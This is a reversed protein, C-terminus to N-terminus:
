SPNAFTVTDTDAITITKGYVTGTYSTNSVTLEVFTDHYEVGAISIGSLLLPKRTGEILSYVGSVVQGTGLVFNKNQLDIIQYGGKKM